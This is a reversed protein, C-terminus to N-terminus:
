MVNCIIHALRTQAPFGGSGPGLTGCNSLLPALAGWCDRDVCKLLPPHAALPSPRYCAVTKTATPRTIRTICPPAVLKPGSPPSPASYVFRLGVPARAWFTLLTCYFDDSKGLVQGVLSSYPSRAPGVLARIVIRGTAGHAWDDLCGWRSQLHQAIYNQRELAAVM